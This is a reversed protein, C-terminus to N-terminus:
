ALLFCVLPQPPTTILSQLLADHFRKSHCFCETNEDHHCNKSTICRGFGMLSCSFNVTHVNCIVVVLKKLFCNVERALHSLQNSCWGTCWFTTPKIELWPVYSPQSNLGRDPCICSAVLQYKERVNVQRGRARGEERGLILLWIRLRSTKFFCKIEPFGWTVM